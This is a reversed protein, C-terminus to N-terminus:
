RVVRYFVEGKKIMGLEYRAESEILTSGTKWAKIEESLRSNRALLGQNTQEKTAIASKLQECPIIGGEMFWLKYQLLLLVLLCVSLFFAQPAAKNTLPRLPDMKNM